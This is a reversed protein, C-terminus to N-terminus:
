YLGLRRNNANSDINASSTFTQYMTIFALPAQRISETASRALIGPLNSRILLFPLTIIALVLRLVTEAIAILAAPFLLLDMVVVGVIKLWKSTDSAMLSNHLNVVADVILYAVSGLRKAKEPHFIATPTQFAARTDWRTCYNVRLIPYQTLTRPAVPQTPPQIDQPTSSSTAATGTQANAQNTPEAAESSPRESKPVLISEYMRRESTVETWSRLNENMHRLSEEEERTRPNCERGSSDVYIYKYKKTKNVLVRRGNSLTVTDYKAASEQPSLIRVNPMTETPRASSSDSADVGNDSDDSDDQTQHTPSTSGAHHAAYAAAIDM